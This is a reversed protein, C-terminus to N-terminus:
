YFFHLSFLSDTEGTVSTFVLVNVLATNTLLNLFLGEETNGHSHWNAAGASPLKAMDTLSVFAGFREGLLRM